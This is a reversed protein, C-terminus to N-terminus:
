KQMPLIPTKKHSLKKGKRVKEAVDVFEHLAENIIKNSDKHNAVTATAM